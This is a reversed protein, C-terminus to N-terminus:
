ANVVETTDAPLTKGQEAYEAEILDFVRRLEDLAENRSAMLAYCGPISPIEAVWGDDQRYLVLKYDDFTMAVLIVLGVTEAARRSGTTARHHWQFVSLPVVHANPRRDNDSQDPHRRQCAGNKPCLCGRPGSLALAPADRQRASGVALDDRSLIQTKLADVVWVSGCTPDSALEHHFYVALPSFYLERREVGASGASSRPAHAMM